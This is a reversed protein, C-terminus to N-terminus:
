KHRHIKYIPTTQKIYGMFKYKYTQLKRLRTKIRSDDGVNQLVLLRSCRPHDISSNIHHEIINKDYFTKGHPTPFYISSYHNNTYKCFVLILTTRIRKISIYHYLPHGVIHPCNKLNTFFVNKSSIYFNWSVSSNLLEM